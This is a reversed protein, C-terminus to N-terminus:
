GAQSWSPGRPPALSPLWRMSPLCSWGSPLGRAEAAYVTAAGLEALQERLAEATGPEGVVVAAVDGFVRAATILEGTTSDLGEATYEVLVYATSM